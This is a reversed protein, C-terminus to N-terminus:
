YFEAVCFSKLSWAQDRTRFSFRRKQLDRICCWEGYAILLLFFEMSGFLILFFLQVACANYSISKDGTLSSMLFGSICVSTFSIELFSFNRLFFCVPTKLHSDLVTLIIITLNGSVSLVYTLLLFCFIVVQMEPNDTLGLLIFETVSSSNRMKHPQNSLDQLLILVSIIYPNSLCIDADRKKWIIITDEHFTGSIRCTCEVSRGIENYM